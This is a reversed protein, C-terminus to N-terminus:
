TWSGTGTQSGNPDYTWWQGSGTATWTAKYTLVTGTYIKMEGTNDPNNVLVIQDTVAGNTYVKQTGTLVNNTTSWSFEGIQTTTNTEYFKWSGSKGDASTTGELGKWNNYTTADEPDKGNLTFIWLFSGDNQRTATFKATFTGEVYNWTWTNGSQVSQIYLYPTFMTALSNISAVYSKVTQANVDTSSTTPGKFTVSPIVPPELQPETPSGDEKSCGSIMLAITLVAISLHSIRRVM